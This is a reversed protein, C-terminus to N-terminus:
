RTLIATVGEAAAAQAQQLHLQRERVLNAAEPLSLRAFATKLAHLVDEEAGPRTDETALAAILVAHFDSPTALPDDLVFRCAALRLDSAHWAPGSAEPLARLALRVEAAALAPQGGTSHLLVRKQHILAPFLALEPSLAATRRLSAVEAAAVDLAAHAEDPRAAEILACALLFRSRIVNGRAEADAPDAESLALDVDLVRRHWLVHDDLRGSGLARAARYELVTRHSLRVRPDRPRLPFLREVLAAAAEYHPGSARDGARLVELHYALMLHSRCLEYLREADDPLAAARATALRHREVLHLAARERAGLTWLLDALREHSFGLNSAFTPHDPFSANLREDIEFAREYLPLARAPHRAEKHLDGLHVLAVSLRALLDPNGDRATLDLFLTAAEERAATAGALNGEQRLVSGLQALADARLRRVPATQRAVPDMDRIWALIREVQERRVSTAVGERELAGSVSLLGAAVQVDAEHELRLREEADLARRWAFTIAVVGAVLLVLAATGAAVAPRHRRAFRALLYAATHPRAAIAESHLFRRVDAALADASAYRHEPERALAVAVITELDRPLDPRIRRLLPADSDRIRRAAEVIPLGQVPIPPHGALVEWLIVGLARIDSRTDIRDAGPGLQEPSMYPLTGLIAGEVTRIGTVRRSPDLARAIGFDLVHPHGGADVIIHSPKLDRHIIGRQHAAHVIDAARAFIALTARLDRPAGFNGYTFPQGEVLEMVFWPRRSGEAVITGADLLRVIGPHVLQGLVQIEERFREHGPDAPFGSRCLKVAVMRGSAIAEARYVQGSAGEGLLSLIRYGPVRPLHPRVGSGPSTVDAGTEPFGQGDASEIM